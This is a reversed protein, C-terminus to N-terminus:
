DAGGGGAGAGRAGPNEVVVLSARGKDAAHRAADAAPHDEQFVFDLLTALNAGTVLVLDGRERLLRRAAITCSGAPLDTFIVRAGTAATQTRMVEAIEDAGMDRNSLALFSEGRGTIQAVASIVGDAWDGHGAVIALVRAATDPESPVPPEDPSGYSNTM